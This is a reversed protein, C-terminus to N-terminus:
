DADGVRTFKQVGVDAICLIMSTPTVVAVDALKRRKGAEILWLVRDKLEWRMTVAEHRIIGRGSADFRFIGARSLILTPRTALIGDDATQWVGAISPERPVVWFLVAIGLM